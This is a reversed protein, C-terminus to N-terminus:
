ARIIINALGLGLFLISLVITVYFLSKELGRKTRFTNGEGGFAGSLGVGQQQLLIVTVLLVSIIIQAIALINEMLITRESLVM